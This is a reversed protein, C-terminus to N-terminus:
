RVLTQISEIETGMMKNLDTLIFEPDYDGCTFLDLHAENNEPFTHISLHSEQLLVVLTFGIPFFEHNVSSIVNLHHTKCITFVDSKIKTNNTFDGKFNAITHKNM